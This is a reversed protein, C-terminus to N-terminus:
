VCDGEFASLFHPMNLKVAAKPQAKLPRLLVSFLKVSFNFQAQKAYSVLKM